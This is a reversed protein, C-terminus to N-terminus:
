GRSKHRVIWLFLHVAGTVLLVLAGAGSILAAVQTDLGLARRFPSYLGVVLFTVGVFAAFATARRLYSLPEQPGATKTNM